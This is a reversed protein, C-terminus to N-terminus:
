KHFKGRKKNMVDLTKLEPKGHNLKHKNFNKEVRRHNINRYKINLIGAKPLPIHTSNEAKLLCLKPTRINPRTRCKYECDGM